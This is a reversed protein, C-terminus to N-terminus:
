DDQFRPPEALKRLVTALVVGSVIVGGHFPLLHWLTRDPCAIQLAPLAALATGVGLLLGTPAHRRLLGGRAILLVVVLAGFTITSGHLLCMPGGTAIAAVEVAALTAALGLVPAAVTAWLMASASPFLLGLALGLALAALTCLGAIAGWFLPPPVATPAMGGHFGLGLGLGLSVILAAAFARRRRGALRALDERIAQEARGLDSM